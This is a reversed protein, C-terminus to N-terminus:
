SSGLPEFQRVMRHTCLGVHFSGKWRTQFGPNRHTTQVQLLKLLLDKTFADGQYRLVCDVADLLKLKVLTIEVQILLLCHENTLM